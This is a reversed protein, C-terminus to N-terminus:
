RRVTTADLYAIMKEEDCYEHMEDIIVFSENSGTAIDTVVPAAFENATSSGIVLGDFPNSRFEQKSVKVMSDVRNAIKNKIRRKKTHRFIGMLRNVEPVQEDTLRIFFAPAKDQKLYGM